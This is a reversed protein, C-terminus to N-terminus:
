TPHPPVFVDQLTFSDSATGRLRILHWLDHIRASTAPFLLTRREAVGHRRRPTGDAEVIPAQGGLWTAHRSGSAFNFSGSLRYGGDVAVARSGAPPGWALVGGDGFIKQAVDPALYASVM